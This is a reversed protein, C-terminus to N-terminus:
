SGVGAGAQVAEMLGQHGWVDGECFETPRWTDDLLLGQCGVEVDFGTPSRMYFSPMGDNRHRGLASVIEMGAKNARDLTRGVGDIDRLEVLMHQLGHAAGLEIMAISHHRPNCRLFQLQADEGYRFYDSLKFGLVKTYFEFCEPQKKVFLNFHGVGLHGAVFDHNIQPSRFNYDATQGYFLEIVNGSPDQTYAIGTVARGRAEAATGVRVPIQLDRLEQIANELEITGELEFGFYALGNRDASPHIAVRWQREDMKLYVSGDPGIGTRASAPAEQGPAPWGQGPVARAPMMGLVEVGFTLWASPDTADLGVYAVAKIQM